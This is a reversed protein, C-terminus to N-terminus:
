AKELRDIEQLCLNKQGADSLREKARNLYDLAKATQHLYRGYLLGLMLHVQETYEYSSYSALFLEYAKASLEWKGEAMLQNSMDLQLQRPLVQQSDVELLQEYQRIAESTNHQNMAQGIRARLELVRDTAADTNNSVKAAVPKGGATRDYPVYADDNVSDRFQRRRNWQRLTGWLDEYGSPILKAALLVMIVLIGFGYGALHADFAINANSVQKQLVNDWFIMKFLIFYLAKLEFTGILFFFYLVTILTHPFLVLYAGTVAAVAGSAGLVPTTPHLWAHGLGSFVAGGLYFCIYGINGLRDNVNNGFMYLFFMNGLIHMLSGHLFAYSVFQWIYPHEPFLMFPLAWNHLTETYPGVRHPWYSLMFIIINSAILIYNAYPTKRPSISTHIPIM